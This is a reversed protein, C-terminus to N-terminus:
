FDKKAVVVCNRGANKAASLIGDAAQPLEAFTEGLKAYAVGVSVTLRHQPPPGHPESKARAQERWGDLRRDREVRSRIREALDAAETGLQTYVVFEDGGLRAILRGAATERVIDALHRLCEDGAIPGLVDNISKFNDVDILLLAGTKGEELARTVRKIFAPRNHLGTLFDHPYVRARLHYLWRSLGRCPGYIALHGLGVELRWLLSYLRPNRATM